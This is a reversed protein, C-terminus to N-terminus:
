WGIPEKSPEQVPLNVDNNPFLEIKNKENEKVTSAIQTCMKEYAKCKNQWIIDILSSKIWDYQAGCRLFPQKNLIANLISASKENKYSALSKLFDIAKTDKGEECIINYFKRKYYKEYVDMYNESPFESMLKFSLENLQYWNDNLIKRIISTDEAKKYQALAYTSYEIEEFLLERQAMEKIISYYKEQPEIRSAILHASRLYNHKRLLIDITKNKDEITKWKGNQLLFDSVKMNWIGFEGADTQVEATDDLNNNILDFHNFTERRLMEQLAMGRLIPHESKNLKELENDTVSFRITSDYYEVVAKSVLNTLAPQIIKRFDKIAYKYKNENKCSFFLLLFALSVFLRIIHM